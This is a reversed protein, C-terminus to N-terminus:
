QAGGIQRRRELRVQVRALAAAAQANEPQLRQAEAYYFAATALDQEFTEAVLGLFYSARGRLPLARPDLESRARGLAAKAEALLARTRRENGLERARMAALLCESGHAFRRDARATGAESEAQWRTSTSAREEGRALTEVSDRLPSPSQLPDCVQATAPAPLFLAFLLGAAGTLARPPPLSTM